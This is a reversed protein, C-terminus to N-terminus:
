TSLWALKMKTRTPSPSPAISASIRSPTMTRGPLAKPCGSHIRTVTPSGPSFSRKRRFSRSKRAQSRKSHRNGCLRYDSVKPIDARNSRGQPDFGVSSLPVSRYTPCIHGGCMCAVRIKFAFPQSAYIRGRCFWGGATLGSLHPLAQRPRPVCRNCNRVGRPQQFLGSKLPYLPKKM